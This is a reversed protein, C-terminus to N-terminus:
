SHRRRPVNYSSLSLEKDQMFTEKNATLGKAGSKNHEKSELVVVSITVLRFVTM